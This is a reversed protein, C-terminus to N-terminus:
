KRTKTSVMIVGNAGRSGYIATASADKLVEIAEIDNPNITSLSNTIRVDGNFQPVGDIVILPENGGAISSPGRVRVSIGSGPQGSSQQVQVGAMRGQMAQEVSAVPYEQIDSSKISSVSGTLTSKKQAGYGVVVVDDLMKSDALLTVNIVKRGNIPVEQQRFGVYSFILATANEPITLSYNGEADSVASTSGNKVKM